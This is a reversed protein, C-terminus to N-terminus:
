IRGGVLVEEGSDPVSEVPDESRRRASSEKDDDEVPDESRRRAAAAMAGAADGVGAVGAAGTLPDAGQEKIAEGEKIVPSNLSVVM